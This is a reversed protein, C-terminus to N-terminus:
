AQKAKRLRVIEDLLKDAAQRKSMIPLETTRGAAILTLINTDTDFGAGPRTVDNYCILDLHKRKRKDDVRDMDGGTEAAFGVFIQHPKKEEGAARAVDRTQHLRLM